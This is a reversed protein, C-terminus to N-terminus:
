PNLTLATARRYWEWFRALGTALPTRPQYGLLRHAKSIDAWTVPVDGAQIPQFNLATRRGTVEQLLHVMDLLKVPQANGLNFVEFACEYEVGALIGEVIDDVFTYDRSTSGDGFIPLPQGGDMLATFKHIALDPRQRPGYVTFLRLCVVPLGHLHSYTYCLMEAALKTAAYPSIPRLDTHEESFPVPATAGYVSSSSIFVFRRIRAASAPILLNLTGAVNVEEYLKPHEISARVGARAAFHVVVDPREREFVARVAEPDRIDAEYFSAPGTRFVEALNQRKRAPSYFDDFNDLIAVGHGGRLLAECLHSGIFGAGGTVLIKHGSAM